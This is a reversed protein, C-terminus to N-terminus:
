VLIGQARGTAKLEAIIKIGAFKSVAYGIVQFIVMWIKYGVGAFLLGDFAAAAFTKRFAYVCTYLCFAALSTYLTFGAIPMRRLWQTIIHERTSVRVDLSPTLIESRM